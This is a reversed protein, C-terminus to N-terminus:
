RGNKKKKLKDDMLVMATVCGIKLGERDAIQAKWDL